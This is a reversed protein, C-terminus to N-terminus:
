KVVMPRLWNARDLVFDGAPDVELVLLDVGKIDIPEPRIPAAGARSVPSEWLVKGDGMVRFQVTGAPAGDSRPAGSDDM